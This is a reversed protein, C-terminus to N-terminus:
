PDPILRVVVESRGGVGHPFHREEVADENWAIAFGDGTPRISPILSATTNDTLRVAERTAAGDVDFTQVYVEQRGTTDDSWAVGVHRDNWALYAGISEGATETVRRANQAADDGLEHGPVVRLYVERNGDREDFWTLATHEPTFVIDPYMSAFGDDATLRVREVSEGDIRVAFLESSTTRLTADYVVWARGSDDLAANLNWTTASAPGLSLAPSQPLGQLDLWRGRVDAGEKTDELWAVFLRGRPDDALVVPVRGPAEPSLTRVWQRSGTRSWRGLKVRSGTDDADYWAVVVHGGVVAVDPEFSSAPSATLRYEPSRPRGVVDLLRLYIESHEHRTDFWAVVFGSGDGLERLSAEYAGAGPNSAPLTGPHCGCLLLAGTVILGRGRDIM